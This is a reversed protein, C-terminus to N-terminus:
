AKRMAAVLHAFAAVVMAALWLYFAIGITVAVENGAEDVAITKNAYTVLALPIAALSAILAYKGGPRRVLAGLLSVAYAVNALWPLGWRFVGFLGFWGLLLCNLGTYQTLGSAKQVFAPRFLATVWLAISTAFLVLPAVDGGNVFPTFLRRM